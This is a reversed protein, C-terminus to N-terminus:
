SGAAWVARVGWGEGRRAEGPVAYESSDARGATYAVSLHQNQKGKQWHRYYLFLALVGLLLAAMVVIGVVAGLSSSYGSPPAPVM